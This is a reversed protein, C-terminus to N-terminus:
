SKKSVLVRLSLQIGINNVSNTAGNFYAVLAESPRMVRKSRVDIFDGNPLATSNSYAGYAVGGNGSVTVPVNDIWMWSRMADEANSPDLAPVAGGHPYDVVTLGWVVTGSGDSCFRARGVIRHITLGTEYEVATNATLAGGGGISALLVSSTPTAQALGTQGLPDWLVTPVTLWRVQRKARRFSRM